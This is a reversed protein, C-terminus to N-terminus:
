EADEYINDFELDQEDPAKIAIDKIYYNNMDMLDVSEDLGLESFDVWKDEKIQLAIQGLLDPHLVYSIVVDEDGEANEVFQPDIPNPYNLYQPTKSIIDEFELIDVMITISIGKCKNDKADIRMEGQEIALFEEDAEIPFRLKMGDINFELGLSDDELNYELGTQEMLDKDLM